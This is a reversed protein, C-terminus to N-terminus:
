DNSSYDYKKYQHWQTYTICCKPKDSFRTYRRSCEAFGSLGKCILVDWTFLSWYLLYVTTMAVHSNAPKKGKIICVLRKKHYIFNRHLYAQSTLQSFIMTMLQWSVFYHKWEVSNLFNPVTCTSYSGYFCQKLTVTNISTPQVWM